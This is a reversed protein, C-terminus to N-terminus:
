LRWGSYNWRNRPAVADRYAEIGMGEWPNDVNTKTVKEEDNDKGTAYSPEELM